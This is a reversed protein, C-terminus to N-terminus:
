NSYSRYVNLTNDLEFRPSHIIEEILRFLEERNKKLCSTEFIINMEDKVGVGPAVSFSGAVQSIRASLEKYGLSGTSIGKNISYIWLSLGELFEKSVTKFTFIIRYFDIDEVIPM